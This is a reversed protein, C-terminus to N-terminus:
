SVTISPDEESNQEAMLDDWHVHPRIFWSIIFAFGFTATLCVFVAQPFTKVTQAYITSFVIPAVVKALSHLLGSAGLLEGIRDNPTHKTLAAQLTPSGLGGVSAVVGSAYLAQESRALTYLLFGLTDFFMATRVISLDFLDSGSNTKKARKSRFLRTVLPLIVILSFVRAGNVVSMFQSMELTRWKFMFNTYIVIINLTGMAVGFAITDVAALLVLNWRLASSTGPGTPWLIKLTPLNIAFKGSGEKRFTHQERALLQRKKSLSEPVILAIWICFFIHVALLTYFITVIQGSWVSIYGAAIPGLALGTFLAAHFWAFSVSRRAPPTCDTAYAHAIAVTVTLSGFVGDLAAGVLFWNVNFTEPYVAAFIFVIENCITGISSIVLLPRRGYRDSLAGLTPIVLASLIGSVLTIALSLYAVRRQIEEKVGDIQCQANVGEGYTIPSVMFTPDLIAQEQLYDRCTLDLMLTSKPPLVGGFAMTTLFFPALVWFIHPRRYWPLRALEAGEPWDDNNKDVAGAILPTNEDADQVDHHSADMADGDRAKNRRNRFSDLQADTEFVTDTNEM